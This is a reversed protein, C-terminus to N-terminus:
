WGCREFRGRRVGNGGMPRRLYIKIQWKTTFGRASSRMAMTSDVTVPLVPGAGFM